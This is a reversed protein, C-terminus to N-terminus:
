IIVPCQFLFFFISVSFNSKKGNTRSSIQQTIKHNVKNQYINKHLMLIRDKRSLNCLYISYLVYYFFIYM